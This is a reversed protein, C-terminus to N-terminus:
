IRFLFYKYYANLRLNINHQHLVFAIDDPARWLRNHIARWCGSFITIHRNILRSTVIGSDSRNFIAGLDVVTMDITEHLTIGIGSPEHVLFM